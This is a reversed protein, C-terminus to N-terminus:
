LEDSDKKKSAPPGKTVEKEFRLISPRSKGTAAMSQRLFSDRGKYKTKFHAVIALCQEKRITRGVSGEAKSLDLAIKPLWYGMAANAYGTLLLGANFIRPLDALEANEKAVGEAIHFAFVAMSRCDYPLFDFVGEDEWKFTEYKKCIIDSQQSAWKEYHEESRGLKAASSLIRDDISSLVGDIIPLIHKEVDPTIIQNDHPEQWITRVYKERFEKNNLQRLISLAFFAGNLEDGMLILVHYLSDLLPVKDLRGM